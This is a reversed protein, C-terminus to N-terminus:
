LSMHSDMPGAVVGTRDLIQLHYWDGVLCPTIFDHGVVLPHTPMKRDALLDGKFAGADRPDNQCRDFRQQTNVAAHAVANGAPHDAVHESAKETMDIFCVLLRM